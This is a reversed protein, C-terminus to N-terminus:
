FQANSFGEMVEEGTSDEDPDPRNLESCPCGKHVCDSGGPHGAACAQCCYARGEIIAAQESSVHHECGTCACVGMDTM